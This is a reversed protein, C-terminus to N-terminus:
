KKVTRRTTKKAPEKVDPTTSVEQKEAETKVDGPTINGFIGVTVSGDANVRVPM